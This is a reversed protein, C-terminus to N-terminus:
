YYERIIINEELVGADQLQSHYQKILPEYFSAIIYQHENRAAEPLQNAFSELNWCQVGDISAGNKKPDNDLYGCLTVGWADLFRGVQEAAKGAPFLFVKDCNKCSQRFKETNQQVFAKITKEQLAATFANILASEYRRMTDLERKHKSIYQELEAFDKDELWDSGAVFLKLNSEIQTKEWQFAQLQKKKDPLMQIQQTMAFILKVFDVTMQNNRSLTTSGVRRRYYYFDGYYQITRCYFLWLTTKLGDISVLYKTDEDLSVLDFFERRVVFRWVYRNFYPLHFIYDIAQEAPVNNIREAEIPVDMYNLAGEEVICQFTGLILDPQKLTIIESIGCLYNEAVLDDGDILHIYSGRALEVAHIHGRVPKTPLPLACFRIKEPYRAAYAQCIEVSCDTSGNDVLVIEYDDYNQKLASEICEGIYQKLNYCVICISILM